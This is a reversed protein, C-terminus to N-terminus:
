RGDGKLRTVTRHSEALRWLRRVVGVVRDERHVLPDELLNGLGVRFRGGLTRRRKRSGLARRTQELGLFITDQGDALLQAQRADRRAALDVDHDDAVV